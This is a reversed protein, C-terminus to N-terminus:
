VLELQTSITVTESLSSLERCIRTFELSNISVVSKYDTEPIVLHEIEISILNMSFKTTRENSAFVMNLHTPNKGDASLTISDTPNALRMIKALNNVNVGLVM